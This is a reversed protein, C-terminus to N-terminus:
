LRRSLQSALIVSVPASIRVRMGADALFFRLFFFLFALAAAAAALPCAVGSSPSASTSPSSAYFLPLPPSEAVNMSVFRSVRDMCRYHDRHCRHM